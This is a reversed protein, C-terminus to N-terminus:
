IARDWGLVVRAFCIGIVTRAGHDKLVQAATNLTSGSTVVDDILIVTKGSIRSEMRPRLVISGKLNSERQERTMGKQQKTRKTRRLAEIM